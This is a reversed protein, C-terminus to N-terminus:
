SFRESVIQRRGIGLRRLSRTVAPIMPGPGCVVYIWGKREEPGLVRELLGDDIMGTEGTWGQPPESLVHTVELRLESCMRELEDRYLIQEACRNAFILKLPREDREAALQRLMSLIPAVGVGGALFVIGRGTRGRLTLNGHPGDLYAPAGIPTDGISRTFDGIEKIVFSLQSGDAPASSISFPHETIAFPSRNLTLWVFQGAEFDFAVDREPAIALEWTKLGIPQVSGVRYRRRRQLLPTVVHVYALSVLAAALMALWFATLAPTVSYGGAVVAHHVGFVAIVVALVAHVARWSEYTMGLQHRQMATLVVALTLLWAVVGTLLSAGDLGLAPALGLDRGGMAPLAYIFPHALVLIALAIAMVRHFRMTVDIGIRESVFRFRGSLVFELLLMALGIMGAVAALDFGLGRSPVESFWALVLPLLALSVYAAVLIGPALGRRRQSRAPAGPVLRGDLAQRSPGGM